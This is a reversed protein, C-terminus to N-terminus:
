NKPVSFPWPATLSSCNPNTTLINSLGSGLSLNWYTTPTGGRWFPWYNSTSSTTWNGYHRPFTLPSPDVGNVYDGELDEGTDLTPATLSAPCGNTNSANVIDDFGYGGTLATTTGVSAPPNPDPQENRRDSFYVSYGEGNSNTISSAWSCYTSFPAATATLCAALNKVDLEVYYMTGSARSERDYGGLDVLEGERSDFLM